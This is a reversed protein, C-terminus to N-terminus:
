RHRPDATHYNVYRVLHRAVEFASVVPRLVFRM